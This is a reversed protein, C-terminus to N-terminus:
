HRVIIEAGARHQSLFSMSESKRNSEIRRSLEKLKASLEERYKLYEESYPIKWSLLADNIKVAGAPLVYATNQIEHQSCYVSGCSRCVYRIHFRNVGLDHAMQMASADCYGPFMKYLPFCEEM